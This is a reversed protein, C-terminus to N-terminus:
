PKGASGSAILTVAPFELGSDTEYASAAKRARERVAVRRDEPLSALLNSLPGALACTRAWWEEFSPVRTPVPFEEVAVEAFGAGALLGELKSRDELAFPGPVGPPPVPAGLEESVADLVLGLWPNEERPGWVAIAFRGRARLVRRIESAALGPDLVFMFGERCLAVDFSDDPEDIRELDLVRTTVNNLGRADARAAAYETMQAVVDSLVVEGDPGVREAAALGLGGAGCALELVRQGAEPAALELLRETATAARADVYEAHEGWAPAVSAWMGHLGARIQDTAVAEPAPTSTSQHTTNDAPM